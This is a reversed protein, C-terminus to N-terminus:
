KKTKGLSCYKKVESPAGLHIDQSISLNWVLENLQRANVFTLDKVFYYFDYTDLYHDVVYKLAHFPELVRKIRTFGVIGPLSINPKIGSPITVFYRIRDVLHALTQNIAVARTHLYEQSTLVGVFLRDRIGLETAFYRPRVFPRVPKKPKQPRSKVNLKVRHDYINDKNVIHPLFEVENNSEFYLLLFSASLGLSMGLFLFINSQFCSFLFRLFVSM